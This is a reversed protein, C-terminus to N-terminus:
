AKVDTTFKLSGLDVQLAGSSTLTYVFVCASLTYLTVHLTKVLDDGGEPTDTWSAFYQSLKSFFDAFPIVSFSTSSLSVLKMVTNLYM